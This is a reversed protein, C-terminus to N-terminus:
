EGMDIFFVDVRASTDVPTDLNYNWTDGLRPVWKAPSAGGQPAPTPVHPGEAQVPQQEPSSTPTAGGVVPTSTLHLALPAPTPHAPTLTDGMCAELQAILNTIEGQKTDLDQYLATAQAEADDALSRITDFANGTTASQAKAATSLLSSVAAMTTFTATASPGHPTKM